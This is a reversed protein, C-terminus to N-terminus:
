AVSELRFKIVERIGSCSIKVKKGGLNIMSKEEKATFVFIPIYVITKEKNVFLGFIIRFGDRTGSSEPDTIKWRNKYFFLTGVDGLEIKTLFDGLRGTYDDVRLKEFVKGRIFDSHARIDEELSTKDKLRKIDPSIFSTGSFHFRHEPVLGPM